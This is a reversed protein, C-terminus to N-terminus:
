PVFILLRKREDASTSFVFATGPARVVSDVTGHESRSQAPSAGTPGSRLLFSLGSAGAPSRRRKPESTPSPRAPPPPAPSPRDVAGDPVHLSRDPWAPLCGTDDAIGNEQGERRLLCM